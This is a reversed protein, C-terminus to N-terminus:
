KMHEKNAVVLSSHSTTPVMEARELASPQDRM